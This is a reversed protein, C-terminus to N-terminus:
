AVANADEQEIEEDDFYTFQGHRWSNRVITKGLGECASVVWDAITQMPPPSFKETHIGQEMM